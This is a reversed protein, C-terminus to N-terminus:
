SQGLRGLVPRRGFRAHPASRRRLFCLIGARCDHGADLCQFHLDLRQKSLLCVTCLFGGVAPGFARDGALGALLAPASHRTSLALAALGIPMGRTSALVEWGAREFITVMLTAVESVVMPLVAPRRPLMALMASESVLVPLKASGSPLMAVAAVGACMMGM